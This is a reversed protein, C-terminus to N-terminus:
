RLAKRLTESPLESFRRFYHQSFEGLKTFGCSTAIYTVTDGDKAHKLCHLALELRQERVWQMPTCGFRKAFAYQLNRASMGSVSEIDSLTLVGDLNAQIYECALDLQNRSRLVRKRSIAKEGFFLEPSLLMVFCRYFSDELGLKALLHPHKEFARITAFHHTFLQDFSIGGVQLSIQRDQGLDLAAAYAPRGLGLM